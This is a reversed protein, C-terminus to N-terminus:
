EDSVTRTSPPPMKRLKYSGSKTPTCARWNRDSLKCPLHQQLWPVVRLLLEQDADPLCLWLGITAVQEAPTNGLMLQLASTGLPMEFDYEVGNFLDPEQGPIPEGTAPDLIKFKTRIVFWNPGSGRGESPQRTGGTEYEDFAEDAQTPEGRFEFPAGGGIPQLCTQLLSVTREYASRHSIGGLGHGGVYIVARPTEGSSSM